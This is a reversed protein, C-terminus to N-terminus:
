LREYGHGVRLKCAVVVSKVFDKMGIKKGESLSRPRYSIPVEDIREGQMASLATLEIEYSFDDEKSRDLLIPLLSKHFLKYCTPQDTIRTGFMANMLFTLVKGGTYFVLSSYHNHYTDIGLIRSGYVVKADNKLFPELLHIYEGPDYELDADQIILVDGTAIAFGQKLAGGKGRNIGTVIPIVTLNKYRKPLERAKERIIEPSADRSGDDVLIIEKRIGPTNAAAVRDVLASLSREENYVPIVVSVSSVNM